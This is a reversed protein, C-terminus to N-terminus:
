RMLVNYPRVNAGTFPVSVMYSSSEDMAEQFQAGQSEGRRIGWVSWCACGPGSSGVVLSSYDVEYGGRSVRGVSGGGFVIWGHYLVAIVAGNTEEDAGAGLTPLVPAARKLLSDGM